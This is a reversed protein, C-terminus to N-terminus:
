IEQAAAVKIEAFLGTQQYERGDGAQGTQCEASGGTVQQVEGTEKGDVESIKEDRVEKQKNKYRRRNDYKVNLGEVKRNVIGVFDIVTDVKRGLSEIPDDTDNLLKYDTWANHTIFGVLVSLGLVNLVLIAILVVV